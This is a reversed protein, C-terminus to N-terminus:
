VHCAELAAEAQAKEDAIEKEIKGERFEQGFQKMTEKVRLMLKNVIETDPMPHEPPSHLYGKGKCIICQIHPHSWGFSDEQSPNPDPVKGTTGCAYCPVEYKPNTEVWQFVGNYITVHWGDKEVYWGSM